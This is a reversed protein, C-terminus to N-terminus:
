TCDYWLYFLYLDLIKFLSFGFFFLATAYKHKFDVVYFYQRCWYLFIILYLLLFYIFLIIIVVIIIIIILFRM